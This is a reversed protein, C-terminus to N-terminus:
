LYKVEFTVSGDINVEKTLDLSDARGITTAVELDMTLDKVAIPPHVGGATNVAMYFDSNWYSAPFWSNGQNNSAITLAPAGDAVANSVKVAFDGLKQNGNILGLGFNFTGLSSGARNDIPNLAFTAAAVCAVTM